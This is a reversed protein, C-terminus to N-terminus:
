KDERLEVDIAISQKICGYLSDNYEETIKEKISQSWRLAAKWAKMTETRDYMNQTAWKEYEKM